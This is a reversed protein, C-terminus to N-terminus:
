QLGILLIPCSITEKFVRIEKELTEFNALNSAVKIAAESTLVIYIAGKIKENAYLHQIKILDLSSRAKNSFYFLIATENAYFQVYWNLRSDVKFKSYWNMKNFEYQLIERLFPSSNRQHQFEISSIIEHVENSISNDLFGNIKSEIFRM